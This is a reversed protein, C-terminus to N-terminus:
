RKKFIQDPKNKYPKLNCTGQMVLIVETVSLTWRVNVFDMKVRHVLKVNIVLNAGKKFITLIAFPIVILITPSSNTFLIALQPSKAFKKSYYQITWINFEM